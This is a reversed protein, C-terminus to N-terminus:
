LARSHGSNYSEYLSRLATLPTLPAATAWIAYESVSMALSSSIMSETLVLHCVPPNKVHQKGLDDGKHRERSHQRSEDPLGGMGFSQAPPHGSSGTQQILQEGTGM